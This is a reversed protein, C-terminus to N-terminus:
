TQQKGLAGLLLSWLFGPSVLKEPDIYDGIVGVLRASLDPNQSLVRTVKKCLAPRYLIGQLLRSLKYKKENEKRRRREYENLVALSFDGLAFAKTLTECALQASRLSLYIGEGTFPDIFGTADGVLLLGGCSPPSVSFALSDVSRVKECPRASGLLGVRLPNKLVSTEYFKHLDQGRVDELRVVLVINVKGPAVEALGTYGPPSIHM